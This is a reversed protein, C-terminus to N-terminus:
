QSGLSALFETEGSVLTCACSCARRDLLPSLNLTLPELIFCTRVSPPSAAPGLPLLDVTVDPGKPTTARSPAPWLVAGQLQGATARKPRTGLPLAELRTRPSSLVHQSGGADLLLNRKLKFESCTTEATQLWAQRLGRQQGPMKSLSANLTRHSPQM